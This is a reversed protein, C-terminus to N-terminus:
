GESEYDSARDLQAVPPRGSGQVDPYGAFLPPGYHFQGRSALSGPSEDCLVRWTARKRRRRPKQLLPPPPPPPSFFFFIKRNENGPPDPPTRVPSAPPAWYINGLCNPATCGGGGGGGGGGLFNGPILRSPGQRRRPDQRDGEGARRGRLVGCQGVVVARRDAVDDALLDLREAAVVAVSGEPESRRHDLVHEAAGVDEPWPASSPQWGTYRGRGEVEALDDLEVPQPSVCFTCTIPGVSPRDGREIQHRM